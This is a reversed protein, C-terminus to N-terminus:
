EGWLGRRNVGGRLGGNRGRSPRSHRKFRPSPAGIKSLSLRLLLDDSPGFGSQPYTFSHSSAESKSRPYGPLKGQKVREFFREFAADVRRLVDQLIQSYIEQYEPREEKIRLSSSLNGPSRPLMSAQSPKARREIMIAQMASSGNTPTDGKKLPLM